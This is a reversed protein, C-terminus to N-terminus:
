SGYLPLVKNVTFYVVYRKVDKTHFGYHCKQCLEDVLEDNDEEAKKTLYLRIGKYGEQDELFLFSANPNTKLNERTLREAMIFIVTTEDVVYPQSYLATNVNGAADATAMVGIGPTDNFYTKLDM